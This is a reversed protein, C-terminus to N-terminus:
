SHIYGDKEIGVTMGKYRAMFCGNMNSWKMTNFIEMYGPHQLVANRVSERQATDLEQPWPNNIRTDVDRVLWQATTYADRFLDREDYSAVGGMSDCHVAMLSTVKSLFLVNVPHQRFSEGTGGADEILAGTHKAWEKLVGSLNCADQILLASKYAAHLADNM